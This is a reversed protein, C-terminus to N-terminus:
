REVVKRGAETARYGGQHERMVLGAEVLAKLGRWLTGGSVEAKRGVGDASWGMPVSALTELLRRQSATLASGKAAPTKVKM